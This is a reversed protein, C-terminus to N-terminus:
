ATRESGPAAAGPCLKGHQLALSRTPRWASRNGAGPHLDNERNTTFVVAGGAALLDRVTEAVPAAYRDRIHLFPNDIFLLLPRRAWARAYGLRKEAGRGVADTGPYDNRYAALSFRELAEDVRENRERRKLGSFTLSLGINEEVTYDPLFGAERFVRATRASHERSLPVSQGFLTVEGRDPKRLGQLWTGLEHYFRAATEGSGSQLGVCEGPFVSFSDGEVDLVTETVEGKPTHLRHLLVANRFCALPEM